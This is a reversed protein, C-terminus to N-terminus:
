QDVDDFVSRGSPTATEIAQETDLEDYTPEEIQGELERILRKIEERLSAANMQSDEDFREDWQIFTLTRDIESFLDEPDSEKDWNDKIEEVINAGELLLNTTITEVAAKEEEDTFLGRACPSDAFRCSHERESLDIIKKVTAQRIDESVLEAACLKSLIQLGSNHSAIQWVSNPICSSIDKTSFYKAVLEPPCRTSLFTKVPDSWLNKPSEYEELKQLIVDHRDGPVIIKSGEISSGGCTVELLLQETSVGALYVDILEPNNGVLTAYADRITPHRFAWYESGGDRIKKLLSDDLSVLAAKVEGLTVGLLDLTGAVHQDASVPIPLKGGSIFVLGIAAREAAALCSVVDFLVRVPKEFFDIVGEKTPYIQATFKPNGFRRAIEPLFKPVQAADELFSKVETKFKLPQSGAKLHGYLIMQREVDTLKEVQIVVRSDDFLEFASIKLDRKAASFIYDRSTFVVRAGSKIAAKLKPLLQNWENVRNADYQTAGFADDVWLFQGPDDPNWLKSFDAPSSVMLTQLNWEDAASLAMLNAIMTKGSAPEGLLLVFGHERLAHACQRYAGTPVFCALDPAISDLVERAQRYAQHTVIQTLDGLGYLRPVLRRLRPNETIIKVIWESGFIRAMKAGSAVIRKEAEEAVGAPLAHNTVLFYNDCLGASALRTVKHLEEDVTTIALSKSPKSTHKCQVCFSGSFHEPASKPTWAGFFAADRGGDVGDAFIQVTQGLIDRFICGVLDEFAKWGLVHLDFSISM